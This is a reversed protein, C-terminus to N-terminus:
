YKREFTSVMYNNSDFGMIPNYRDQYESMLEIMEYEGNCNNSLYEFFERSGSVGNSEYVVLIKKPKLKNFVEIDYNLTPTVWILLAQSNGIADPNDLILENVNSYKPQLSVESNNFKGPNPEICIIQNNFKDNYYKEFKGDGSGFSFIDIDSSMFNNIHNALVDFSIMTNWLSYDDIGKNLKKYFNIISEM